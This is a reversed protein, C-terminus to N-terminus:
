TPLRQPEVKSLVSMLDGPEVPKTLHVNFGTLLAKTRDTSRAYATLEIATIKSGPSAPLRVKNILDYGDEGPM